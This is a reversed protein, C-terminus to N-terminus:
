GPLPRFRRRGRCPYTRDHERRSINAIPVLQRLGVFPHHSTTHVEAHLGFERSPSTGDRRAAHPKGLVTRRVIEATIPHLHRLNSDAAVFTQLVQNCSHNDATMRSRDPTDRTFDIRHMVEAHLQATACLVNFTTDGDMYGNSPLCGSENAASILIPASIRKRVRHATRRPGPLFFRCPAKMFRIGATPPLYRMRPAVPRQDIRAAENRRWTKKKRWTKKTRPIKTCWTKESTLSQKSVSRPTAASKTDTGDAKQVLCAAGAAM